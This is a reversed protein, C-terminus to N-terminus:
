IVFASPPLLAASNKFNVGCQTYDWQSQECLMLAYPITLRTEQVVKQLVQQQIPALHAQVEPPIPNPSLVGNLTGALTTAASANPTSTPPQAARTIAGRAPRMWAAVEVYPRVVLMDSAILMSGDPAPVVVFTRDFSKKLLPVKKPRNQSHNGRGRQSTSLGTNSNSPLTDPDGVEEFSGHMTIMLGGLAPYPFAEMSYCQPKEILDHRTKPLQAFFVATQEPGLAVRSTRTRAASIRCLNRSNLLYNGFDTSSDSNNVRNNRFRNFSSDNNAGSPLLHPHSYDFLYSFQSGTTYLILLASRDSDWLKFYNGIFGTATAGVDQSLMFMASSTGFPFILNRALINEDRLVEGDVVALRPFCRLLESKLEGRQNLPATTVFPNGNLVLERLYNFKLRWSDFIRNREFLNNSLALNQLCPFALPLESILSLDRFNNASLDISVVDLGAGSAVKILAPFFKSSTSTKDFYGGVNLEQDHHVASLNLLCSEANYRRSIFGRLATVATETQAPIESIIFKLAQGAFKVGQWRVLDDAAAKNKVYGKLLGLGHDVAFDTVIVRIKRSIFSICDQPLLGNWGGIEVAIKNSATNSEFQQQRNQISTDGRGRNRFNM